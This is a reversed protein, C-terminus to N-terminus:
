LEAKINKKINSQILHGTASTHYMVEAYENEDIFSINYAISYTARLLKRREYRTFNKDGLYFHILEDITINKEDSLLKTVYEKNQKIFTYVTKKIISIPKLGREIYYDKLDEITFDIEPDLVAIIHLSDAIIRQVTRTSMNMVIALEEITLTDEIYGLKMIEKADNDLQEIICTYSNILEEQAEEDKIAQLIREDSKSFSKDSNVTILSTSYSSIRNWVSSTGHNLLCRCQRLKQKVIRIQKEKSDLVEVECDFLFSM